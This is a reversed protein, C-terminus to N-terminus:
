PHTSLVEAATAEHVEEVLSSSISKITIVPCHSEAVVRHVIGVSLLRSARSSHPAGLIVIDQSLSSIEELIITAPDGERILLLPDFRHRSEYPVLASLRQRAALRALEGEQESMGGSGLAHLVTLHARNVEALANAFSALLSSTSHLSTALLIRRLHTGSATAAHTHRGIVCVPIDLIDILSEAVSGEILRAVGSLDRTAVIARDVSRSRVLSPIEEEPLGRLVISECSIGERRFEWAREDLKASINRATSCPLVFPTSCNIETILLSPPILHVLLVAAKSLRAQFIAHLMLAHDDLLNTVVLIMGPNSWQAISNKAM